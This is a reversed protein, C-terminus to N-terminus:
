SSGSGESATPNIVEKIDRLVEKLPRIKENERLVIAGIAAAAQELLRNLNALQAVTDAKEGLLGPQKEQIAEVCMLVCENCINGTSGTIMVPVDNSSKGCFSCVVENKTVESM